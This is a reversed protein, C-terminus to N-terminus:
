PRCADILAKQIAGERLIVPEGNQFGLVTSARGGPTAGADIVADVADRLALEIQAVKTSERSGSLNASTAILPGALRALERAVPHSSVRVGVEGTPSIEFPLGPRSPLVLTLPGPWFRRLFIEAGAPVERWFSRASAEDAAIIPMPKGSARGKLGGLKHVADPRAIAAGLGYFTETPYIVLGGEKLVRAAAEISAVLEPPVGPTRM